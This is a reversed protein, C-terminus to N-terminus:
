KFFEGGILVHKLNLEGDVLLLDADYGVAIKGKNVGLMEAPTESAMRVADNQPIGISIAYKVIELLTSGSGAITDTGSLYLKGDRASVSLSGSTYEGDPLGAPAISDSILILREPGFIRYAMLLTAAAVHHGDGIIQAYIHREAAAGIPGPKRHHFPTMANFTHTLCRAGLDIARTACEYDCATHGISVVTDGSVERIFELAGCVEPAVTIMAVNKYTRFEEVSPPRIYQPAQAGATDANIFPGELHIGLINAGSHREVSENCVRSLAKEPLTMTTPLFSTTGIEAYLRCLGEFDGDMTDRGMYGHTHVDILGPIVTLGGCDIGDHAGKVISAIRGDLIEISCLRGNLLLNTIWM